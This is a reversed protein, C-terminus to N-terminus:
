PLLIANEVAELFAKSSETAGSVADLDTTNCVLVLELLEEIAAGGVSEDEASELLAIDSVAGAEVCVRVRVMGRFGQACGEYAGDPVERWRFPRTAFSLSRDRDGFFTEALGKRGASAACGSLLGVVILGTSIFFVVILRAHYKMAEEMYM